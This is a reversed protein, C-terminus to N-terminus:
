IVTTCQSGFIVGEESSNYSQRSGVLKWLKAACMYRTTWFFHYGQKLKAIVEAFICRNKVM